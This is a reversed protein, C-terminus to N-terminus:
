GHKRQKALICCSQWRNYWYDRADCAGVAGSETDLLNGYLDLLKTLGRICSQGGPDGKCLDNVREIAGVWDAWEKEFRDTETICDDWADEFEKLFEDCRPITM